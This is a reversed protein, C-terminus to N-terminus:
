RKYTQTKFIAAQEKIRRIEFLDRRTSSDVTPVFRCNYNERVEQTGKEFVCNEKSLINLKSFTSHTKRDLAVFLFAHDSYISIDGTRFSKIICRDKERM